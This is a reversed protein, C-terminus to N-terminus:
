NLSSILAKTKELAGQMNFDGVFGQIEKIKDGASADEFTHEMIRELLGEAKAVEFTELNAMLEKLNSLLAEKKMQNGAKPAEAKKGDSSMIELIQNTRDRYLTFLKEHDADIKAIDGDKEAFEQEKALESVDMVGVSKSSSKLGHVQIGYNEFDKNEYYGRIEEIKAAAGEAYKKLIRLYIAENNQCYQLGEATSVGAETLASIIEANGM